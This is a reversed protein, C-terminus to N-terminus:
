TTEKYSVWWHRLVSDSVTFIGNFAECRGVACLKIKLFWKKIVAFSLLSAAFIIPNILNYPIFFLHLIDM